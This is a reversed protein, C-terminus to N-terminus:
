EFKGVIIEGAESLYYKAEEAGKSTIHILFLDKVIWLHYYYIGPTNYEGGYDNENNVRFRSMDGFTNESILGEASFLHSSDYQYTGDRAEQSAFKQFEIIVQTNNMSPITYACLSYQGETSDVINGYGQETRCNADNLGLMQRDDNSLNTSMGLQSLEQENLLLDTTGSITPITDATSCGVVLATLIALIVMNKMNILLFLILIYIKSSLWM